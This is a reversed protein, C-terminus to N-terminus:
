QTDIKITKFQEAWHAVERQIDNRFEEPSNGIVIAGQSELKAKIEPLQLAEVAAAHLKNVIAAPTGAPALLGNWSDSIMAPLGAQAFTPVDPLGSLRQPGAVALPKVKGAQLHPMAGSATMFAMDVHGAILDTMVNSAGKYPIHTLQVGALRQFLETAMHQSGGLGTSGYTLKGPEKKALAILEKVSGVAMDPRVALVGPSSTLKSIPTFSKVADFKLKKYVYGNMTLPAAAVLLTYGDAPAAAVAESAINSGAGPRNDVIFPQGLRTQLHAAVMRAVADTPGGASYGVIIRVPKSPYAADAMAGSALGLSLAACAALSFNRRNM